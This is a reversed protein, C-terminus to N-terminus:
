IGGRIKQTVSERQYYEPKYMKKKEGALMEELWRTAEECSSGKFGVADITVKGGPFVKVIVEKV